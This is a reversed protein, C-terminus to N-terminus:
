FAVLLAVDNKSTCIRLGFKRVQSKPMNTDSNGGSPKNKCIL